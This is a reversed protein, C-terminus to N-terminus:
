KNSILTRKPAIVVRKKKGVLRFIIKSNGEYKIFLIGKSTKPLNDVTYFSLVILV